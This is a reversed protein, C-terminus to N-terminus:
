RSYGGIVMDKIKMYPGGLSVWMVQGDKGCMGPFSNDYEKSCDIVNKLIELTLGGISLNGYPEALKGNRIAYAEQVNCTFQGREPFVYGWNLGKALIGFEVDSIIEDLTAFGPAFFTNSMRVIPRYHHSQARASGNAKEGLLSASELSHLFGVLRGKEIIIHRETPTGESDFYYSGYNNVLTPDDVLTICGSGVMEGKLGAFLSQKHAVLDGEANHGCAEHAFLGSIEPDTIVIMKGAPAKEAKLLGVAKEATKVAFEDPDLKLMTEFGGLRGIRRTISQKRDGDSATVSLICYTRILTQRTHTGTSNFVYEVVINDSYNLTTNKIKNSYKRAAREIRSLTRVKEDASVIDPSIRFINLGIGRTDKVDKLRINGASGCGAISVANELATKLSKKNLLNTSSFGWKGNKLIRVGAGLDSTSYLERAVGNQILV